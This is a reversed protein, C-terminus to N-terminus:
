DCFQVTLNYVLYESLAVCIMTSLQFSYPQCLALVSFRPNTSFSVEFRAVRM